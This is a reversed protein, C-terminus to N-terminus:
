PRWAPDRGSLGIVRDLLPADAPVPVVPGFIGGPPREDASPALLGYSSELSVTDPAYPQGTARALDWGHVLLENLAVQGAVAGPLTVGGAQTMGEWAAPDRWTATLEDLLKPLETRWRGEDDIDPLVNAPNTGTTAGLEKRGADRFATSLMVLHGLMNRVATGPCPTPGGLQDDHVGDALAAVQRAVPELDPMAAGGGTSDTM